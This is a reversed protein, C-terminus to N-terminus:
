FAKEINVDFIGVVQDYHGGADEQRTPLEASALQSKGTNDRDFFQLLTFSVAVHIWHAVFFRGGLAAEVDDADMFTPELTADPVAATEFGAGAFLEVDPDVWYSAGAHAHYTDNWNRRLNLLVTAGPAPSGDPLVACASSEFSLCQSKMVSWRTFDGFLRLELDHRVRWRAGVRVVDPLAQRFSVRQTSAAPPQSYPTSNDLTGTLTQPGVGPQSQYSAGVWLREPLAELMVGAGFGGNVASVDLRSRGENATDPDGFPPVVARLLSISSLILNAAAGISLPGIRYAAGVSGYVYAQQGDIVHWRQIGDAALYFPSSSFRTNQDFHEQGGFPVFLGAGLALRGVRMTAGLAPAGFVNFLHANGTNAGEGGPPDPPDTPSRSHSANANRLALNGDVMLHLGDSFAMGAPNYYLATPNTTVVSGHEGGFHATAFGAASAARTSGVTAAVALLCAGAGRARRARV